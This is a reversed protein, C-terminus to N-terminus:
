LGLAIQTPVLIRCNKSENVSAWEPMLNELAWCRKFEIDEPCSFNFKALPVAHDIHIEGRMFRDWNMGPKFNRELHAKLDSLSYPVLDPWRRGVKGNVLSERIAKSIRLNLRVKPTARVRSRYKSQIEAYRKPHKKIWRAINDAQRRRNAESQRWKKGAARGTEKREESWNLRAEGRRKLIASRNRRYEERSLRAYKEKDRQYRERTPM